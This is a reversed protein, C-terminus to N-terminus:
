NRKWALPSSREHKRGAPLSVSEAQLGKILRDAATLHVELSVVHSRRCHCGCARVGARRMTLNITENAGKKEQFISYAPCCNTLASSDLKCIEFDLFTKASDRTLQLDRPIACQARSVTVLKDSLLIYINM